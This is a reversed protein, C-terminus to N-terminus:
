QKGTVRVTVVYMVDRVRVPKGTVRVTVVYM